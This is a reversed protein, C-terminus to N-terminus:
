RIRLVFKVVFVLPVTLLLYAVLWPPLGFREIGPVLGFMKRPRLEVSSLVSPGQEAHAVVPAAYRWAGVVLPHELTQEGWRFRLVYSRPRSAHLTWAAVSVLPDEPVPEFRRIWGGEAALGEEPAVHVLRGSASVPAYLSARLAEEPAPPYFEVREFAWVALLGVPVLAALMPKWEAKMQILGIRGLTSRHRACAAQDRHAKAERLLEKLRQKDAKCRQLREQNTTFRRVVAFATSTLLALALFLLETPLHLLWGFLLDGASLIWDYM